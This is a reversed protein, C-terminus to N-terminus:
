RMKRSPKAHHKEIARPNFDVIPAAFVGKYNGKAVQMILEPQSTSIDVESGDVDKVVLVIGLPADFFQTANINALEDVVLTSKLVWNRIGDRFTERDYDYPARDGSEALLEKIESDSPGHLDIYSGEYTTTLSDPQTSTLNAQYEAMINYEAASNGDGVAFGHVNGGSDHTKSYAYEDPILVSYSLQHDGGATDIGEMSALM